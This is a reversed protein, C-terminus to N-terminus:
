VLLSSQPVTFLSLFGPEHVWVPVYLFIRYGIPNSHLLVVGGDYGAKLTPHYNFYHLTCGFRM